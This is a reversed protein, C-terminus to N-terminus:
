SLTQTIDGQDRLHKSGRRSGRHQDGKQLLVPSFHPLMQGMGLEELCATRLGIIARIWSITKTIWDSWETTPERCYDRRGERDKWWGPQRQNQRRKGASVSSHTRHARQLRVTDLGSTCHLATSIFQPSSLSLFFCFGLAATQAAPRVSGRYILDNNSKHRTKFSHPEKRGKAGNGNWNPNIQVQAEM